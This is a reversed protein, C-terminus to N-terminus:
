PASHRALVRQFHDQGTKASLGEVHLARAAPAMELLGAVFSRNLNEKTLRFTLNPHKGLIEARAVAAGLLEAPQVVENLLRHELSWPVSLVDCGFVIDIMAARSVVKELMYGGVACGLGHKLEWMSLKTSACGVRWDCVLAVQFGVGIAYGDIAAVVPKPVQLVAIYLEILRNIYAEIERPKLLRSTESFDGGSCFSRGDGGTLVLAQISPDNRVECCTDAVLQQLEASLPNSRSKHNLQAILVNGRKYKLLADM